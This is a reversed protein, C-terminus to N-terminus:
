RLNGSAVAQLDSSVILRFANDQVTISPAVTKATPKPGPTAPASGAMVGVSCPSASKMLGVLVQFEFPALAFHRSQDGETRGMVAGSQEAHSREPPRDVIM